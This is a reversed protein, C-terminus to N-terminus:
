IRHRQYRRARSHRHAGCQLRHEHRADVPDQLRHHLRDQSTAQNGQKKAEDSTLSILKLRVDDEYWVDYAYNILADILTSKGSGTMGVTLITKTPKQNSRGPVSLIRAVQEGKPNRLPAEETVNIELETFGKESNMTQKGKLNKWAPNSSAATKLAPYTDEFERETKLGELKMVNIETEYKTKNEDIAKKQDDVKRDLTGIKQDINQGLFSIKEEVKKQTLSSNRLIIDEVQKSVDEIVTNKNKSNEDNLQHMADTIKAMGATVKMMQEKHEAEVAEKERVAADKVAQIESLKEKELQHVKEKLEQAEERQKELIQELSKIRRQLDTMQEKHKAEVAEREQKARQEQEEKEQIAADKVAQVERLKDEKLQHVQLQLNEKIEAMRAHEATLQKQYETLKEKELQHLQSQLREKVEQAQERQNQLDRELAKREDDQSELQRELNATVKMIQEKHKAEVTEMQQKGRQEQEEKEQIAADKVAQIERLKEEKLQHLQLQLSEKIEVAQAREAKREDHQSKLERELDAKEQEPQSGAAQHFLGAQAQVQVQVQVQQVSQEFFQNGSHGRGTFQPMAQDPLQTTMRESPPSQWGIPGALPAQYDPPQTISFLSFKDVFKRYTLAVPYPSPSPPILPSEPTYQM